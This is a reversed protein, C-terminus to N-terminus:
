GPVRVDTGRPYCMLPGSPFRSLDLLEKFPLMGENFDVTGWASIFEPHVRLVNNFRDLLETRQASALLDVWCRQDRLFQFSNFGWSLELHNSTREGELSNDGIRQGRTVASGVGLGATLQVHGYLFLWGEGTGADSGIVIRVLHGPFGDTAPVVSVIVGDAVAFLPSGMASVLDIGPHGAATNDLSSRVVGFPNVIAGEIIQSVDVPLALGTPTTTDPAQPADPDDPLFPEGSDDGGCTILAPVLLAIAVLPTTLARMRVFM